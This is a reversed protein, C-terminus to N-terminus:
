KRWIITTRTTATVKARNLYFTVRSWKLSQVLSVGFTLQLTTTLALLLKLPGTSAHRSRLHSTITPGVVTAWTVFRSKCMKMLKQDANRRIPNRSIKRILRSSRKRNNQSKKKSKPSALTSQSLMLISTKLLRKKRKVKTVQHTPM